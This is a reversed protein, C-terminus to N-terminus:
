ECSLKSISKVCYRRVEPYTPNSDQTCFGGRLCGKTDKTAEQDISFYIKDNKQLVLDLPQNDIRAVNDWNGIRPHSFKEGLPANTVQVVIIGPCNLDIVVGEYCTVTEPKPESKKTCTMLSIMVLLYAMEKIKKM